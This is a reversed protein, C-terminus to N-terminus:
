DYYEPAKRLTRFQEMDHGFLITADHKKAYAGLFKATRVYGLSDHIIGPVRIPPGLSERMYLADAVLLFTGSRRLDVRLTLMGWAHGSGLNLITVGDAIQVEKEGALVPRWALRAALFAEIDCPVHVDLDERLTYQRMTTTLEADNVFIEANKCAHLNGAHDVHLHSMVVKSIDGPALNLQKLRNTFVQEDSVIYPSQKHIFEPWATKWEPSCATDFLIYGDPHDVLFTHIPIEQWIADPNRNDVTANACGAVLFSKDLVQSGNDLVYMKMGQTM